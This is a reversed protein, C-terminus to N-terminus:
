AWIWIRTGIIPSELIICLHLPWFILRHRHHSTNPYHLVSNLLWSFLASWWLEITLINLCRVSFFDLENSWWCKYAIWLRRNGPYKLAQHTLKAAWTKWNSPLRSCPFASFSWICVFDALSDPLNMIPGELSVQLNGGTAEDNSQGNACRMRMWFIIRFLSCFEGWSNLVQPFPWRSNQPGALPCWLRTSGFLARPVNSFAVACFWAREFNFLFHCKWHLHQYNLAYVDICDSNERFASALEEMAVEACKTSGTIWINFARENGAKEELCWDRRNIICKKQLLCSNYCIHAAAERISCPPYHRTDTFKVAQGLLRTSHDGWHPPDSLEANKWLVWEWRM